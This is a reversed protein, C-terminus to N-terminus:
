VWGSGAVYTGSIPVPNSILEKVKKAIEISHESKIALHITKIKLKTRGGQNNIVSSDRVVSEILKTSYALDVIDGADFDINGQVTYKKDPLVEQIVRINAEEGANVLNEGPAGVYILWPDYKAISKAIALSTKYDKAAQVYLAGHPRVHEVNLNYLKALSSLAGIQYIVLAQIEEDNLNMNRYGFGQIDPFGIHAGISLNNESALKLMNM